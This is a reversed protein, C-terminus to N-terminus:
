QLIKRLNLSNKNVNFSQEVFVEDLFTESYTDSSAKDDRLPSSSFPKDDVLLDMMFQKKEDNQIETAVSSSKSHKRSSQDISVLNNLDDNLNPKPTNTNNNTVNSALSPQSVQNLPRTNGNMATSIQQQQQTIQNQQLLSNQLYNQEGTRMVIGPQMLKHNKYNETFNNINQQNNIQQNNSTFVQHQQQQKQQKISHQINTTSSSTSTYNDDVKRRKKGYSKSNKRATNEQVRLLLERTQRHQAESAADQTRDHRALAEEHRQRYKNIGNNQRRQIEEDQVTPANHFSPIQQHQISPHAVLGGNAPM